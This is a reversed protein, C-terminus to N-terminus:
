CSVNGASESFARETAALVEAVPITTINTGPAPVVAWEPHRFPVCFRPRSGKMVMVVRKGSAVALHGLGTDAGLMFTSLKALGMSVLMPQGASICFGGARAPELAARDAPGGGFLIQLGRSHWHRAVALYSELPWNKKPSSSFPQIFLTPRSGNLQNAAFIKRAEDLADAPLIFENGARGTRLGCQQLLSLNWDAPHLQAVRQVGRTYAWARGSGYVNGWRQPAGTLRTFLATEGYGQFDVVLSFKGARLQRLLSFFEPLVRLPNGSRFAMRDLPIVANVERFGRMLPANEKSTLFVIKASPFNDRVANVAPLTFAVDGISKLRILLINETQNMETKVRRRCIKGARRTATLRFKRAPKHATWAARGPEPLCATL